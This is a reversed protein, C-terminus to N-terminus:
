LLFETISRKNLNYFKHLRQNLVEEANASTTDIAVKNYIWSIYRYIDSVAPATATFAQAPSNSVGVLNSFVGPYFYAVAKGMLMAKFIVGSEYAWVATANQILSNLNGSDAISAYESLIPRYNNWYSKARVGDLPYPHDKFVVHQKTQEAWQIIQEITHHNLQISSIAFLIYSHPINIDHESVEYKTSSMALVREVAIDDIKSAKWINSPTYVSFLYQKPTLAILNGLPSIEEYALETHKISEPVDNRVYYLNNPVTATQLANHFLKIGAGAFQQEREPLYYFLKCWQEYNIAYPSIM